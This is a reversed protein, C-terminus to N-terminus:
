CTMKYVGFTAYIPTDCFHILVDLSRQDSNSVHSRDLQPDLVANLDGGLVVLCDELSVVLRLLEQFFSSDGETPAYVSMFAYNTNNLSVVAYTIRGETDGGTRIISFVM